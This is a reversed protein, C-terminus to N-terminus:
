AAKVTVTSIFNVWTPTTPTESACVAFVDGTHSIEVYGHAATIVAGAVCDANSTGIRIPDGTVAILLKTRSADAATVRVPYNVAVGDSLPYRGSLMETVTHPATLIDKQEVLIERVSELSGLIADRTPGFIEDFAQVDDDQTNGPNWEPPTAGGEPPGGHLDPTHTEDHSIM